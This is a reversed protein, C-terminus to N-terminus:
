SRQIANLLQRCVSEKPPATLAIRSLRLSHSRSGVGAPNYHLLSSSIIAAYNVASTATNLSSFVKVSNSTQALVYINEVLTLPVLYHLKMIKARVPKHGGYYFGAVALCRLPRRPRATKKVARRDIEKAAAAEAGTGM